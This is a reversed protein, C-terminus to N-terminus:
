HEQSDCMYPLFPVAFSTARLLLSTGLVAYKGLASTPIIWSQRRLATLIVTKKLHIHSFLSSSSYSLEEACLFFFVSPLFLLFTLRGLSSIVRESEVSESRWATNMHDICEFHKQDEWSTIGPQWCGFLVLETCWMLPGKEKEEEPFPRLQVWTNLAGM